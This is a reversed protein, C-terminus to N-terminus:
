EILCSCMRNRGDAKAQYLAKDVQAIVSDLQIERDHPIVGVGLSITVSLSGGPTVYPDMALSTRIREAIKSALALDVEPLIVMFEEGGYRGAADTSRLSTRIRHATELLVADGVPHGYLDNIKKFHDLDAMIVGVTLGKRKARSWEMELIELVAGRNWLRTLSDVLAQSRLQDREQLLKRHTQNIRAVGLEIEAMAALDKLNQVDRVTFERTQHDILCLTGIRHGKPGKLPCGAYFLIHPEGKVFPNDMFREDKRADPVVLPEPGLIAYSCFSIERPVETVALGQSSKFWVRDEDVLSILAVPVQFLNLALRTIRDFREESPTDLLFLGELEQIRELEDPPIPSSVM